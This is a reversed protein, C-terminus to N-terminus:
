NSFCHICYIQIYHSNIVGRSIHLGLLSCLVSLKTMHSLQAFYGSPHYYPLTKDEGWEKETLPKKVRLM